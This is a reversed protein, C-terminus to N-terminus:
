KVARYVFAPPVNLWVTRTVSVQRFQQSLRRRFRRGPPLLLGQLYAFTVFRGGPALVDDIARLLDDQLAPPFAAFPLGSVICDCSSHGCAEVYRRVSVASDHYVRAHPCRRRTAAVFAENTEIAFFDAGQPLRGLIAETFAGTGPGFEAVLSAQELGAADTIMRALGPSSPVIAGTAGPKRLFEGFFRFMEM